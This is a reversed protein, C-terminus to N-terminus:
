RNQRVRSVFRNDKLWFRWPKDVDEEAYDIGVRKGIEINEDKIRRFKEIWMRNGALDAGNLDRDIALAICLKGPGSTLNEDKMGGRRRRMTEIGEVPEVARVLVVNPYNIPGTVVNLQFYMGYIFFVYAHGGIGYTIENRATHRGGYSHAAKDDIGLYAEVEVIMGSVREGNEDPVVLLKGILDRAVRVTEKRLFFKRTIRREKNM